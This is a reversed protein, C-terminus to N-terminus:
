NMTLGTSMRLIKSIRRTQYHVAMLTERRTAPDTGDITLDIKVVLIYRGGFVIGERFLFTAAVCCVCRRV